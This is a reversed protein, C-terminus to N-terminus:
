ADSFNCIYFFTEHLAPMETKSRLQLNIATTSEPKLNRTAYFKGSEDFLLAVDMLRRKGDKREWTDCYYIAKSVPSFNGQIGSQALKEVVVDRDTGKPVIKLIADAQQSYSFSNKEFRPTSLQCGTAFLGVFCSAAL